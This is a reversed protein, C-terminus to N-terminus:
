ASGRLWCRMRYAGALAAPCATGVRAAVRLVPDRRLESLSSLFRAAAAADRRSLAYRASAKLHDQRLSALKADITAGERGIRGPLAAAAELVRSMGEIMRVEDHSVSQAHRRYFGLPTRNQLIEFGADSARLWFDYDENRRLAANFPGIRDVVVRRFTSMISVSNDHLILDRPELLRPEAAAPWLPYGDRPGGRIIANASVIAAQPFARFLALQRELHDPMWVDDSDLLAIFEGRALALAANRAAATGGHPVTVVVVREDGAAETRVVDATDDTSADDVVILEFDAFTQARASALTEAIFSASNHAPTVVTVTPRAQNM